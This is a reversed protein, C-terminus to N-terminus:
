FRVRHAFREAAGPQRTEAPLHQTLLELIAQANEPPVYMDVSPALRKLPMLMVVAIPGQPMVAFSKFQGYPYYKQGVTLGSSDLRYAILRPKRGAIVGVVIGAFLVFGTSIKDKTILYIIGAVVITAVTLGLYWSFNKQHAIYESATWEITNADPLAPSQQGPGAPQNKPVSNGVGDSKFVWGADNPDQQRDGGNM